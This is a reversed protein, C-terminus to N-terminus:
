SEILYLNEEPETDAGEEVRTIFKRNCALCLWNTGDMEHLKDGCACVWGQFRGPNGVILAHAPVSRTVVSGAGIMAFAGITLGPLVVVGAGLSAGQCVRTELLWNDRKEYREGIEPIATLRPSRPTADNTFRVGPGLFVGEEITVGDWILVQNKITVGNGVTAGSELFAHGGINCDRGVTAGKMVQAFAWIRTGSGIDTSECLAQPHVFFPPQKSPDSM